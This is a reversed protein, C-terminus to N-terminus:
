QVVSLFNIDDGSLIENFIRLDGIYGVHYGQNNGEIIDYAGSVTVSASKQIPGFGVISQSQTGGGGPMWGLDSGNLYAKLVGEGRDVIGVVSVITNKLDESLEITLAAKESDDNSSNVRWNLVGNELFCSWGEQYSYTNGKLVLYHTSSDVYSFNFSVSFNGLGPDLLDTTSGLDLLSEGSFVTGLENYYLPSVSLTYESSSVIVGASSLAVASSSSLAGAGSEESVDSSVTDGQASSDVGESSSSLAVVSSVSTQHASSQDFSSEEDKPIVRYVGLTDITLHDGALASLQAYDYALLTTASTIVRLTHNGAPLYGSYKGLSDAPLLRDLGYVQVWYTTGLPATAYRKIAGEIMVPQALYENVAIFISDDPVMIDSMRQTTDAGLVELIYDGPEISDLSFYGVQNTQTTYSKYRTDGSIPALYDKPRLSVKAAVAVSSDSNRMVGAVGNTTEIYTGATDGDTSVGCGITILAFAFAIIQLVRM